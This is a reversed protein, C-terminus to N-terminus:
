LILLLPVFPLSRLHTHSKVVLGLIKKDVSVYEFSNWLLSKLQETTTGVFKGHSGLRMGMEPLFFNFKEYFICVTKDMILHLSLLM